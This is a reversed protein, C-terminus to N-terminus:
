AAPAPAPATDGPKDEEKVPKLKERVKELNEKGFEDDPAIILLHKCQEEAQLYKRGEMSSEIVHHMCDVWLAIVDERYNNVAHRPFKLVEVAEEFREDEALMRAYIFAPLLSDKEMEYAQKAAEMAKDGDEKALYILSLNVYVLSPKGYTKLIAKYKAEAEDLRDYQSLRNAAYLTFEPDDNPTAALIDLAEERKSEDEAALLAAARFFKGYNKLSGDKATDLKDAMSMLDKERKNEACYQFYQALLKLDFESLEVLKKFIAAAEESRDLQDLALMYVFQIGPSPEQEAEKAAALVPELISMAEETKGNLVLYEATIRQLLASDPFQQLAATLDTEKALGKKYQDLLIIETLMPNGTLYGSLIKALDAMQSPNSQVEPKRMEDSLFDLCIALTRKHLDHFPEESFIEKAVNRIEDFSQNAMAVRLHIFRSLPTNVLKGSKRVEDSLKKLDDELYAILINCYDAMLPLVGLKRRLKKELAKLDDLKNEFVCSEAYLLYMNVDDITKLYPELLAIIDKFRFGSAYFDALLPTGAFYNIEVAQKLLSEIEADKETEDGNRQEMRRVAIYLAEFRIVPDESKMASTLYDLREGESLKEYTAMFEAMRGLDNKHFAEPDAKVAKQYADDADKPYGSRYSSIVYLYLEQDSFEEGVKAKRGLIGHLLSYSASRMAGTLMKERYEAKLPNLSSATQWMQAETGSNGFEHYINALAVYEAEANPDKAVYQLLLREALAYDKKEYAEMASRRLRTDRLAKAGFYGCALLCSLLVLGLVIIAITKRNM